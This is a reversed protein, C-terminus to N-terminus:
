EISNMGFWLISIGAVHLISQYSVCFFVLNVIVLYTGFNFLCSMKYLIRFLFIELETFWNEIKQHIKCYGVFSWILHHSEYILLLITRYEVNGIKFNFSYKTRHLDYFIHEMFYIAILGILFIDANVSKRNGFRNDKRNKALVIRKRGKRKWMLDTQWRIM